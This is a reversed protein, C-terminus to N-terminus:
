VAEVAVRTTLGAKPFTLDTLRAIQCNSQDSLSAILPPSCYTKTTRATVPRWPTQIKFSVMAPAENPVKM